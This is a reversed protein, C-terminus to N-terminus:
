TLGAGGLAGLLDAMQKANRVGKDRYCNNFMVHLRRVQGALEELRPVWERLEAESYLYDFREAAGVGRRKWTEANRGHFRVVGLDDTTAAVVPPVSSVFGQPMDVCVYALGHESLFALTRPASRETMWSGRRFEVAIRYDPLRKAAHLIWARSEEGPVFWEPFQFLVYGLKGASHLPMLAARFMEFVEDVARAPLDKAYVTARSGPALERVAKPLSSVRTPHGTLLSYAKVNFTFHRPTRQVWLVANRESPPAYYSSDVEVAPFRSAYYALRREPTTADPPYWGSAILTPDTWSATGVLVEGRGAAGTV